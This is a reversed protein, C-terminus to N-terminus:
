LSELLSLKYISFSLRSRRVCLKAVGVPPRSEPGSGANFTNLNLGNNMIRMRLFSVVGLESYALAFLEKTDSRMPIEPYDYRSYHPFEEKFYKM